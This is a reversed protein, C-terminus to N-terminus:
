GGLTIPIPLIAQRSDGAQSIIQITIAVYGPGSVLGLISASAYKEDLPDTTLQESLLQTKVDLLSASFAVFVDLQTRLQGLRLRTMFDTGERPRFTMSGRETLLKLLFRQALKQIGTCIEGREGPLVLEQTLVARGTATAGSYALLDITRDVYEAISM